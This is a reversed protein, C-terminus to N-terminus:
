AAIIQRLGAAVLAARTLGHSRAYADAQRLLEREVTINIREAGAGIPPRGARRHLARDATSLPRSRTQPTIKEAQAYLKELQAPTMRGVNLTGTRRKPM